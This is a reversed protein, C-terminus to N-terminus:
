YEDDKVHIQMMKAAQNSSPVFYNLGRIFITLCHSFLLTPVFLSFKKFVKKYM